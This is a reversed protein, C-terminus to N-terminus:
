MMVEKREKDTLLNKNFLDWIDHKADKSWYFNAVYGTGGGGQKHGGKKALIRALAPVNVKCETKNHYCTLSIRYKRGRHEYGWLVAFDIKGKLNSLIQKGVRKTLVPDLFNLVGVNFGQFKQIVANQAIQEKANELSEDMYWGIIKWLSENGGDIVEWMNKFNEGTAWKNRIKPNQTFRFTLASTFFHGYSIGKITNKASDGLDVLMVSEPVKRKPYFAKWVLACSAHGKQDTSVLKVNSPLEFRPIRHNDIVFVTECIEALPLMDEKFELDVILVTKGALQEKERMVRGEGTGLLLMDGNPVKDTIYHYAISASVTGDNNNQNYVIANIKKRDTISISFSGLEEELTKNYEDLSNYDFQRNNASENMLDMNKVCDTLISNFYKSKASM